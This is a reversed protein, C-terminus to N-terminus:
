AATEQENSEAADAAPKDAPPANKEPMTEGPEDAVATPPPLKEAPPAEVAEAQKAAVPGGAPKDAAPNCGISSCAYLAFMAATCVQLTKMGNRRRLDHNRPTTRRTKNGNVFVAWWVSKQSSARVKMAYSPHSNAGVIPPQM